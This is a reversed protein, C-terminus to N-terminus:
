LGGKAACFAVRCQVIGFLLALPSLIIQNPASDVVIDMKSVSSESFAHSVDSAIGNYQNFFKSKPAHSNYTIGGYRHADSDWHFSM